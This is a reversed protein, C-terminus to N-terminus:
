SEVKEIRIKFESKLFRIVPMVDHVQFFEGNKMHICGASKQDEPLAKEISSIDNVNLILGDPLQMFKDM